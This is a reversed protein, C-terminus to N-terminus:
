IAGPKYLELIAELAQNLFADMRGEVKSWNVKFSKIIGCMDPCLNM